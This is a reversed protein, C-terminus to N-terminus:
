QNHRPSSQCVGEIVRHSSIYGVAGVCTHSGSFYVSCVLSQGQTSSSSSSSETNTPRAGGELTEEIIIVIVVVVVVVGGVVVGVVVVFIRATCSNRDALSLM